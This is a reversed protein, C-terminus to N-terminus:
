ATDKVMGAGATPPILGLRGSCATGCVTADASSSGGGDTPAASSVATVRGASDTATAAVDPSNSRGGAPSALSEESTAGRKARAHCGSSTDTHSADESNYM